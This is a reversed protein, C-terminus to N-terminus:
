KFKDKLKNKDIIDKLKVIYLSDEAYQKGLLEFLQSESNCRYAYSSYWFAYDLLSESWNSYYAHNYQTGKALNIRSKAEKMGFLNNSEIFIKSSYKNSELQAQALVIHPYKFNLNKIRSILKNESFKNSEEIILIKEYETLNRHDVDSVVSVSLVIVAVGFL